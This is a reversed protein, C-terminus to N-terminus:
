QEKDVVPKLSKQWTGLAAKRMGEPMHLLSRRLLRRGFGGRQHQKAYLKQYHELTNWWEPDASMIQQKIKTRIKEDILLANHKVEATLQKDHVRYKLTTKPLHFFRYKHLLCARLWWDYDEASRLTEDFLGVKDFCSKHILVSSGNGIFRTWLASAYEHYSDYHPEIFKKVLNGDNDIIDYDTYVISAEMEKAYKLLVEVADLMLVDDSSLWKFWAGNMKKIGYNLASGIGGNQKYYYKIRNGYKACVQQTNDKSGDDVVIVEMNSYTQGLASEISESILDARNYTPIVISVLDDQKTESAMLCAVGRRNRKGRQM